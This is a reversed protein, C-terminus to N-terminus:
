ARRATRRSCWVITIKEAGLRDNMDVDEERCRGFAELLDDEVDMFLVVPISKEKSGM